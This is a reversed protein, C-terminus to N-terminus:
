VMYVETGVFTRFDKRDKFIGIVQMLHDMDQSSDKVGAINDIKSIEDLAEVEIDPQQNIPLNYIFIPISSKQAIKTYHSILEKSTYGPLFYSPTVVFADIGEKEMKQMKEITRQTGFDSCGVLLVARGALYNITIQIARECEKDTIRMGEGTTGLIFIGHVGGSIAHDILKRLSKEDIKEDPTLPAALPPIVGKFKSNNIFM